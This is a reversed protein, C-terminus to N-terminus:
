PETRERPLSTLYIAAAAALIGFDRALDLWMGARTAPAAGFCGCNITLGRALASGIAALYAVIAIGVALAGIRSGWGSVLLLGALIEFVPLWLAFTVIALNPLIGFEAATDALSQPAGIKIAGAYVFLGGVLLSLGRRFWRNGVIAHIDM